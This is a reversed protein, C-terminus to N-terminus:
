AEAGQKKAELNFLARLVESLQDAEGRQCAAKLQLVPLKLIKQIINKTIVQVKQNEEETLKKLYRNIEQQRIQDLTAKFEQIVPSVAMENAWLQFEALAEGILLKVGPIAAKRKELAESAKNRIDDINFLYVGPIEEISTEISRPISLDVFYQPSLLPTKELRAKTLFPQRGPVASIVVDARPIQEAVQDWEVVSVPCEEVLALSKELTRNAISITGFAAKCLNKCIDSGIEGLGIVLVSPNVVTATLERVLEVTAYSVSAAGDRFGTEHAVRKSTFFLTHMLRHLFPGATGMEAAYQYAHKVQNSIHLDGIVQSELGMSVQFLHMLTEEAVHIVKFYATLTTKDAIGKQLAILGIIQAAYDQEAQYYVETRNCTSLVLIDSAPICDQVLKLLAKCENENFAVSERVHIPSTQYSLSVAKFSASM